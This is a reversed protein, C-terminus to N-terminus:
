KCMTEDKMLKIIDNFNKNVIDHHTIYAFKNDYYDFVESLAMIKKSTKQIVDIIMTSGTRQGSLICFIKLPKKIKYEKKHMNCIKIISDKDEYDEDIHVIYNSAIM